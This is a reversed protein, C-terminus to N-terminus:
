REPFQFHSFLLVEKRSLQLYEFSIISCSCKTYQFYWVFTKDPQQKQQMIHMNLSFTAPQFSLAVSSSKLVFTSPQPQFMLFPVTKGSSPPSFSLRWSSIFVQQTPSTLDLWKSSRRFTLFLTTQEFKPSVPFQLGRFFTQVLKRKNVCTCLHTAPSSVPATQPIFSYPFGGGEGWTSVHPLIQSSFGCSFMIM